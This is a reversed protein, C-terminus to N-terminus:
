NRRSRLSRQQDQPPTTWRSLGLSRLERFMTSKKGPDRPARAAPTSAAPPTGPSAPAPSGRAPTRIPSPRPTAAPGTIREARIPTSYPTGWYPVQGPIGSWTRTQEPDERASFWGEEEDFSWHIPVKSNNGGNYGTYGLGELSVSFPIGKERYESTVHNFVEAASQSLYLELASIAAPATAYIPSGTVTTEETEQDDDPEPAGADTQKVDDEALDIEPVDNTKPRIQQINITRLKKKARDIRNVKYDSPSTAHLVIGREWRQGLTPNPINNLDNRMVWVQEGNAPRWRQKQIAPRDNQRLMQRQQAFLMDAATNQIDIRDQQLRVLADQDHREQTHVIDDMNPWHAANPTYGFMAEFPSVRTAKSIATNHAMMLAPIYATWHGTALDNSAIMKQLYDVMKRNFREAQGNTRPHYPSTTGHRVKLLEWLEKVTNNCFELGQDTVVLEPIGYHKCWDLLSAATSTADKADQIYLSVLKSFADTIVCVWKKNGNTDKHPGWLDAHVRQNPRRPVPLPRIAAPAEKKRRNEDCVKCKDVHDRVANTIGPWWFRLRIQEGTAFEGGHGALADDHAQKLLGEYMSKPPLLRFRKDRAFGKRPPLFFGVLGDQIGMKKACKRFRAPWPGSGALALKVARIEEDKDQISKWDWAPYEEATQTIASVRDATAAYRRSLFDAPNFAGGPTYRLEFDFDLQKEHLRTLTRTHTSSMDVLPKHDTYVYFHTGRLLHAFHEIAYTAAKMELLYASYNREAKALVRSAYAVPRFVGAQEQILCAGIGGETGEDFSGTSADVFLHFQGAPRPLALTPATTIDAVIQDFAKRAAEPLQGTSWKSDHRTLAHLPASKESFNSVFKRFFNALGLFSRLSPLDTPPPASRLSEWKDIGPAIGEASLTHGLYPVKNRFLLCKPLNLKLGAQAFRSLTTELHAVHDQFTKSHVLVDDIFTVCNPVDLLVKDMLRSFSAPSGQLGMPAMLWQYQGMGPVTFATTHKIKPDLPLQWFGSTLDLATFISSAAKGVENLCEEVSRISYRDDHSKSNLRRYDLVLRWGADGKKAVCFIPSNYPSNAPEILGLELWQKVHEKIFEMERAPLPFQKTFVPETSRLRITHTIDSARGVDFKDASFVAAYKRVVSLAKDREPKSKLHSVAEGAQKGIKDWHKSAKPGNTPKTRAALASITVVNKRAAKVMDEEKVAGIGDAQWARGIPSKKSITVPLASRNQIIAWARSFQDLNVLGALGERTSAIPGSLGDPAEEDHGTIDVFANGRGPLTNDETKVRIRIKRAQRPDLTFDSCAFVSGTHWDGSQADTVVGVGAVLQSPTGKRWTIKGNVLDLAKGIINMGLVADYAVADSIHWTAVVEKGLIRTVLRVTKYVPFEEGTVSELRVAPLELFKLGAKVEKLFLEKSMVSGGAGTDFLTDAESSGVGMYFM